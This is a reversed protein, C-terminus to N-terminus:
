AGTARLFALKRTPAAARRSSPREAAAHPGGSAQWLRSFDVKQPFKSTMSSRAQKSGGQEVWSSGMNTSENFKVHLVLICGDTRGDSSAVLPRGSASGHFIWKKACKSMAFWILQESLSEWMFNGWIHAPICASFLDTGCCRYVCNEPDPAAGPLSHDFHFRTQHAIM